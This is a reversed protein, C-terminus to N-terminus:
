QRGRALKEEIAGKAQDRRLEKMAFQQGVVLSTRRSAKGVEGYWQPLDPSTRDAASRGADARRNEAEAQKQLKEEFERETLLAKEGYPVPREVPIGIEADTTWVGQLDPHGWPTLPVQRTQARSGQACVALGVIAISSVAIGLAVGSRRKM